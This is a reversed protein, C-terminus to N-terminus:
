RSAAAIWENASARKPKTRTICYERNVSPGLSLNTGHFMAKSECAMTAFSMALLLSVTTRGRNGGSATTPSPGDRERGAQLERAKSGTRPGFARARHSTPIMGPGLIVV